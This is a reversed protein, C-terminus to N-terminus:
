SKEEDMLEKWWRQGPNSPQGEEVMDGAPRSIGQPNEVEGEDEWEEDDDEADTVDAWEEDDNNGMNAEVVDDSVEEVLARRGNVPLGGGGRRRSQQANSSAAAMMAAIVDQTINASQPNTNKKMEKEQARRARKEERAKIKKEESQEEVAKVVDPSVGYEEALAELNDMLEMEFLFESEDDSSLAAGGGEEDEEADEWDEDDLMEDADVRHRWQRRAVAGGADGGEDMLMWDEDDDDDYWGDDDDEDDYWDHENRMGGRDGSMGMLFKALEEEGFPPMGTHDLETTEMRTAADGAQGHQMLMRMLEEAAGEGDDARDSHPPPVFQRYNTNPRAAKPVPEGVGGPRRTTNKASEHKETEDDAKRGQAAYLAELRAKMKDKEIMLELHEASLDLLRALAARRPDEVQVDEEVLDAGPSAKDGGECLAHYREVAALLEEKSLKCLEKACHYSFSVDTEDSDSDTASWEYDVPDVTQRIARAQQVAQYRRERMEDHPVSLATQGQGQPNSHSSHRSVALGVAGRTAQRSKWESTFLTLDGQVRFLDEEDKKSFNVKNYMWYMTTTGVVVCATLGVIVPLSIRNSIMNGSNHRGSTSSLIEKAIGSPLVVSM